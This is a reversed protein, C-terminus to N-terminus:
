AVEVSGGALWSSTMGRGMSKASLTSEPAYRFIKSDPLTEGRLGMNISFFVGGVNKKTHQTDTDVKHNM